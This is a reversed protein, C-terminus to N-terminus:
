FSCFHKLPDFLFQLSELNQPVFLFRFCLLHTVSNKPGGRYSWLSGHFSTLLLVSFFKLSTACLSQFSVSSSYLMNELSRDCIDVFVPVCSKSHPVSFVVELRKSCSLIQLQNLKNTLNCLSLQLINWKFNPFFVEIM